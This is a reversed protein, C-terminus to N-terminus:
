LAEPVPHLVLRQEANGAAALGEGHGLDDLTLLARGQHDHVVLRQRRLERRLELLEERLVRDLVEDGVVVVVLRLRVDWPGVGVDLFLRVDVLLDVPQPM